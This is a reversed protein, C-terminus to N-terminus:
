AMEGDEGDPSPAVVPDSADVDVIQRTEAHCFSEFAVVAHGIGDSGLTGGEDFEDGGNTGGDPTPRPQHPDRDGARGAILEREPEVHQM